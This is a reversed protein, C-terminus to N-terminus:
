LSSLLPDHRLLNKRMKWVAPTPKACGLVMRAAADGRRPLRSGIRSLRGFGSGLLVRGKDFPDASEQRRSATPHIRRQEFDVHCVIEHSSAPDIRVIWKRRQVINTLRFHRQKVLIEMGVLNRVARLEM